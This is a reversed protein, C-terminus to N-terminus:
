ISACKGQGVVISYIDVLLLGERRLCFLRIVRFLLCNTGDRQCIVANRSFMLTSARKKPRSMKSPSLPMIAISTSITTIFLITDNTLDLTAFFVVIKPVFQPPFLLTYNPALHAWRCDQLGPMTKPSRKLNIDDQAWAYIPWQSAALCELVNEISFFINLVFVWSKVGRTGKKMSKFINKSSMTDKTQIHKTVHRSDNSGFNDYTSTRTTTSTCCM